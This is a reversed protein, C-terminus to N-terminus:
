EAPSGPRRREPRGVGAAKGPLGPGTPLDLLDRALLTGAATAAPFVVTGVLPVSMLLFTPISLGLVRARRRQMAARREVLRLRGRRELTSGILEIGLMWGGFTASVVPVVIQGLVPVFGAAFILPAVLASIAILTLSQRLSRGISPLWAEEPARLGPEFERDVSESIKDYIPSGLALTLTTFSILMLLLSGGLLATGALVEVAQEWGASWGDAFPTLWDAFDPLRMILVVLLATFLISMGLPPIAGLWFLRPRRLVLTFGRGLLRVGALFESIV